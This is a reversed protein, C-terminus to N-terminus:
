FLATFDIASVMTFVGCGTSRAAADEDDEDETDWDTSSVESSCDKLSASWPSTPSCASPSPVKLPTYRGVASVIRPTIIYRRSPHTTPWAPSPPATKNIRAIKTIVPLVASDSDVIVVLIRSPAPPANAIM